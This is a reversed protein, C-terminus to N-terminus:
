RQQRACFARAQATPPKPRLVEGEICIVGSLDGPVSGSVNKVGSQKPAPRRRRPYYHTSSTGASGRARKARAASDRATTDRDGACAVRCSETTHVKGSKCYCYRSSQGSASAPPLWVLAVLLLAAKM